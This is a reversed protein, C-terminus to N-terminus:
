DTSQSESNSPVSRVTKRKRSRNPMTANVKEELAAVREELEKHAAFTKKFGTTVAKQLKRMLEVSEERAQDRLLTGLRASLARLKDLQKIETLSGTMHFLQYLLAHLDQQNKTSM